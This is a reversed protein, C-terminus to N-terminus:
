IEIINSDQFILNKRKNEFIINKAHPPILINNHFVTLYGKPNNEFIIKM